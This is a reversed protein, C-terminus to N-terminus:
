IVPPTGGEEAAIPEELWQRERIFKSISQVYGNAWQRSQRWKGTVADVVGRHLAAPDPAALLADRYAREADVVKIRGKAPYSTLLENWMCEFQGDLSNSKRPPSDPPLSSGCGTNDTDRERSKDQEQRPRTKEIAVAGSIAEGHGRWRAAAGKRGNAANAEHLRGQREIVELAVENTLMEPQSPHEVFHKSVTPWAADFEVQTVAAVLALKAPDNPLAGGWEYLQNLLDIYIARQSTNMLLRAKSSLWKSAHWPIWPFSPM